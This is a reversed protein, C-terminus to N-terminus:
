KYRSLILILGSLNVEDITDMRMSNSTVRLKSQHHGQANDMADDYFNRFNFHYTIWNTVLVVIIFILKNIKDVSDCYKDYKIKM